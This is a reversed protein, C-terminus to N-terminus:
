GRPRTYPVFEGFVCSGVPIGAVLDVVQGIDGSCLGSGITRTVLTNRGHEINLCGSRMHNIYVRSPGNRFAITNEDVVIMDNARYNPVCSTPAGAVKGAVLTELHAQELPTRAATQEPPGMTCAGVVSAAMLLPLTRM